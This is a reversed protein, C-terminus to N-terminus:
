NDCGWCEVQGNDLTACTHTYGATITKATRGAGLEVAELADAMEGSGDGRNYTDGLGLQGQGNYGWCKVQFFLVAIIHCAVFCSM